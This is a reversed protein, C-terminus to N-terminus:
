TASIRFPDLPATPLGPVQGPLEGSVPSRDPRFPALDVGPSTGLAVDAAIEGCLPGLQLGTSGNGTAVVLNDFGAPRGLLPLGDASVPRLGVRRERISAGALRPALRVAAARVEEVGAGTVEASLDPGDEHTAGAVVRDPAFSLLYYWGLGTVIPWGGCGAPGALHLIQGRQARLPLELGLPRALEASWVGAALIVVDAGVGRGACVVQVGSAALRLAAPATLIRVGRRRCAGALAAQLRRGDVRAAGPLHVAARVDDTLLPHLRRAAAGDVLEPRGIQGFGARARDEACALAAPLEAEARTGIAVELLGCVSYGTDPEGDAALRELLRPYHEAGRRILDVLAPPEGGGSGPSVIGAGAATARGALAPDIVTVEAGSLALRHAASMGVIGAGVVVVVAM